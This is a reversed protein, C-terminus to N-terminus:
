SCRSPKGRLVAAESCLKVNKSALEATPHNHGSTYSKGRGFVFIGWVPFGAPSILDLFAAGERQGKCGAHGGGISCADDTAKGQIMNGALFVRCIIM